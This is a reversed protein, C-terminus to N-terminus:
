GVNITANGVVGGAISQVKNTFMGSSVLKALFDSAFSEDIKTNSGLTIANKSASNGANDLVDNIDTRGSRSNIVNSFTLVLDPQKECPNFRIGMVRMKVMYDDRIGVHIFNLMKLEDSWGYFEELELLNELDCTFKYQPQSIETLKRVADEYLEEQIDVINVSDTLSTTIINSNTYDNDIM